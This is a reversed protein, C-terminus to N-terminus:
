KWDKLIAEVDAKLDKAGRFSKHRKLPAAAPDAARADLILLQPVADVGWKKAVPDDKKEFKVKVWVCKDYFEKLPENGFVGEFKGSTPKGDTWFMMVPKSDGKGKELAADLTEEWPPRRTHKDAVEKFKREVNLADTRDVQDIKEGEPSYFYVLPSSSVGFKEKVEKNKTAHVMVRVFRESEKV